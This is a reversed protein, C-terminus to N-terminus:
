QPMGALLRAARGATETGPLLAAARELIGRCGRVMREWREREHQEDESDWFQVAVDLDPPVPDPVTVEMVLPLTGKALRVRQNHRVSVGHLWLAVGPARCDVRMTRERDNRLLAYYYTVTDARRGAVGLVDVSYGTQRMRCSSFPVEEFRYQRGHVELVNGKDARFSPVGGLTKRAEDRTDIPMPGAAVWRPSPIACAAWRHWEAALSPEVRAHPVHSWGRAREGIAGIWVPPGPEPPDPFICDLAAAATVRAEYARGEDGTYGICTLSQMSRLYVSGGDFSPAAGMIEIHNRAVVIGDRGPQIASMSGPSTRPTGHQPYRSPLHGNDAVFLFNGAMSPQIESFGPNAATIMGLSHVRDGTTADWVDLSQAGYYARYAYLLGDHFVIGPAAGGVAHKDWLTRAGVRDRNAMLLQVAAKRKGLKFYLVDEEAVPAAGRSDLGRVHVLRRGDSSRVISGGSCVLVTMEEDGNSLRVPVPTASGHVPLSWLERGTAADLARLMTRTVWRGEERSQEASLLALKGDVLLSSRLLPRPSSNEKLRVMWRREGALDFCAAVRTGFNAWVNSGDTVPTATAHGAPQWGYPVSPLRPTKMHRDRFERASHALADATLELAALRVRAEHTALGQRELAAHRAATDPGLSAIETRTERARAARDRYEKWTDGVAFELVNCERRWLIEGTHKDLCILFHPEEQTFVRDGTIVPSSGCPGLPTRWRVNIGKALDWAVVPSADFRGDWRNRWGHVDPPIPSMGARRKGEIAERVALVAAESRPEGHTCVCVSFRRPGLANDYQLLFRNRGKRFQPRVLFRSERDESGAVAGHSGPAPPGICVLRDNLWLRGHGAINLSLWAAAERPSWVDAVAYFTCAEVARRVPQNENDYALVHWTPPTARGTSKDIRALTWQADVPTKPEVLAGNRGPPHLRPIASRYPAIISEVMGPMLPAEEPWSIPLFPGLVRWADVYAWQTEDGEAHGTGAPLANTRGGAAPLPGVGFWPGFSPDAVELGRPEPLAVDRAAWQPAIARMRAVRDRMDKVVALAKPSNIDDEITYSTATEHGEFEDLQQRIGKVIVEDLFLGDGKKTVPARGPRFPPRHPQPRRIRALASRQTHRTRRMVDVARVQDYLRSAIREAFAAATYLEYGTEEEPASPVWVARPEIGEGAPILTGELSGKRKPLSGGAIAYTGVVGDGSVAAEIQFDALHRAGGSLFGVFSTVTIRGTIRRAGPEEEVLLDDAHVEHWARSSALDWARGICWRGDWRLLQVDLTRGYSASDLRMDLRLLPGAGDAPRALSGFARYWEQDLAKLDGHIEEVLKTFEARIDSRVVAREVDPPPGQEVEFAMPPDARAALVAAVLISM